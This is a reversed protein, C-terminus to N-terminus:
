PQSTLVLMEAHEGVAAADTPRYDAAFGYLTAAEAFNGTEFYHYGLLALATENDPQIQLARNWYDVAAAANGRNSEISAVEVFYGVNLPDAKAAQLLLRIAED